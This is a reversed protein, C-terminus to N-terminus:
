YSKISNKYVNCVLIEKQETRENNGKDTQKILNKLVFSLLRWSNGTASPQVNYFHKQKSNYPPAAERAKGKRYIAYDGSLNM